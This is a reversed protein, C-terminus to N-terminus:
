FLYEATDQTDQRDYPEDTKIEKDPMSTSEPVNMTGKEYKQSWEPYYDSVPEPKIMKALPHETFDMKELRVPKLGSVTLIAENTNLRMIEDPNLLRREQPAFTADGLDFIHSLGKHKRISEVTVTGVGLNQSIYQSTTNDKVGMVLWYNCDALITEWDKDPYWSMLQVLSQIVISCNIGRSRVTSLVKTFSPIKGINCFEDLLFDVPVPVVCGESSDALRTLKIFLFSFFLSSLFSFATDLDSIICFYACPKKGPMSLDIDSQATMSRVLDNQFIQLRTGLGIIVGSRVKTDTEAYINYPMRAPHDAPLRTFLADLSKSNGCALLSYLTGMNRDEEPVENIVYLVLAKLLNIEARDWFPDGSKKGPVGTNAIITDCFTAADFDSKVESLPNWRDGHIMDVLNFVRVTYDNQLFFNKMDRTLEGKPDTVIVSHRTKVAQMLNPRIFCRSKRTGPPGIVTVNMNDGVNARVVVPRGSMKGFIMGPTLGLHFKKKAEALTMWGSTGRVPNTEFKTQSNSSVNGFIEKGFYVFFGIVALLLLGLGVIKNIILWIAYVDSNSLVALGLLKKFYLWSVLLPHRWYWGAISYNAVQGFESPCCYIFAALSGLFWADFVYVAILLPIAYVMYRLKKLYYEEACM